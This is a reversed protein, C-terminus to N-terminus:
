DSETEREGLADQVTRGTRRRFRDSLSPLSGSPRDLLIKEIRPTPVFIVSPGVVSEEGREIQAAWDDFSGLDIGELVVGSADLRRLVGWIKEQPERLYALVTEGPELGGSAALRRGSREVLEVLVGGTTRPHLFAVKSGGAGPRPTRDLLGLGLGALRELAATVDDVEFTVHHIGPGRKDLFRGVPSDPSRPELLEIRTSGAPLFAVDVGETPVSERGKVELGLALEWFRLSEDITRVAIGLHDVNRIM